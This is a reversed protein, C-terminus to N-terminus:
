ANAGGTQQGSGGSTVGAVPASTAPPVPEVVPKARHPYDVRRDRDWVALQASDGHLQNTVIVDLKRVAALGSLLAAAIGAQAATQASRGADRARVASEFKEVLDHLESM